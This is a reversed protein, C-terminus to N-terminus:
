TLLFPESLPFACCCGDSALPSDPINVDLFLTLNTLFNCNPMMKENRGQTSKWPASRKRKSRNLTLQTALVQRM